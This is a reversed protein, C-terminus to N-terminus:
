FMGLDNLFSEALDLLMQMHIFSRLHLGDHNKAAFEEVTKPTMNCWKNTICYVVFDIVCIMFEYWFMSFHYDVVTNSYNLLEENSAGGKAKKRLLYKVIKKLLYAHYAKKVLHKIKQTTLSSVDASTCLFYAVDLAGTGRGAWQWDIVYVKSHRLNSNDLFLNTVKYDGHLLTRDPFSKFADLVKNLNAHLRRGLDAQSKHIFHGDFNKVVQEWAVNVTRKEIAKAKGTWHGAQDWVNMKDLDEHHWFVAHFSALRKLCTFSSHFDFGNPQGDELGSLDQLVMGFRNNFIDEYNYYVKPLSIGRVLTSYQTYFQSEISYSLLHQADQNNNLDKSYGGAKVLSYLHLKEAYTKDWLLFKAVLSTPRSDELNPKSSSADPKTVPSDPATLLTAESSHPVPLGSEIDLEQMTAESTSATTQTASFELPNHQPLSEYLELSPNAVNQQSQHSESNSEQPTFKIQLKSVSYHCGGTLNSVDMSLVASKSDIAKNEKLIEEIWQTTIIKDAPPPQALVSNSSKNVVRVPELVISSQLSRGKMAVYGAVVLSVCAVAVFVLIIASM